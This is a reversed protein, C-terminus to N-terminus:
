LINKGKTRTTINIFREGSPLDEINIWNRDTTIEVNQIESKEILILKSEKILTKNICIRLNKDEKSINYHDIIKDIQFFKTNNKPYIVIVGHKGAAGYKAIAISDKQISISDILQPDLILYQLNTKFTDLLVLPRNSLDLRSPWGFIKSQAFVSNFILLLIILQFTYTRM